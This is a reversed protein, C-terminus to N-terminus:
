SNGTSLRWIAVAVREEVKIANRFNSDRKDTSGEVLNVILEFTQPHLRFEKSWLKNFVEECRNKSTSRTNRKKWM